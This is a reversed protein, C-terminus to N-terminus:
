SDVLMIIPNKQNPDLMDIEGWKSESGAQKPKTEGSLASRNTIIEIMSIFSLKEWFIEKQIRLLFGKGQLRSWTISERELHIIFIASTLSCYLIETTIGLDM